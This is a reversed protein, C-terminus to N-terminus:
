RWLVGKGDCARCLEETAGTRAVQQRGQAVSYFGIPVLGRGLCVPCEHPTATTRSPSLPEAHGVHDASRGCTPCAIVPYDGAQAM